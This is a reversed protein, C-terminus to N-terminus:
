LHFCVHLFYSVCTFSLSCSTKFEKASKIIMCAHLLDNKCGATNSSLNDSHTSTDTGILYIWVQFWLMPPSYDLTQNTSKYMM